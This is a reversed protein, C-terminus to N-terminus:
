IICVINNTLKREYKLKKELTIPMECINEKPQIFFSAISYAYKQVFKPQYEEKTEIM